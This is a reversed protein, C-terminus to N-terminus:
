RNKIVDNFVFHGNHGEDNIQRIRKQVVVMHGYPCTTKLTMENFTVILFQIYNCVV